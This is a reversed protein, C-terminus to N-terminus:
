FSVASKNRVWVIAFTLSTFTGSSVVELYRNVTGAVAQRQGLTSGANVTSFTILDAYTGNSTTCHRIKVTASTGAVNTVQIYAQAGNSTGAGNDDVATGTTGTTDTRLGATLQTGWELGYANATVQVKLTLNGKNDRTGDYNVQKGNIAAAANGLTTGRLYCAAVDTRPLTHLSDAWYPSTTADYSLFMTWDMEGTRQLGLREQGASKIGTVDGTDLPCTIKDLSAVTGSLDYGALYFNDGLGSTKGSM